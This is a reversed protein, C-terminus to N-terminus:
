SQVYEMVELVLKKIAERNKATIPRNFGIIDQTNLVDQQKKYVDLFKYFKSTSYEEGIQSLYYIIGLLGLNSTLLSNSREVEWDIEYQVFDDLATALQEIIEVEERRSNIQYLNDIILSLDTFNILKNRGLVSSTNIYQGFESSDRLAAAVKDSRNEQQLERVRHKSWPMAKAHQAQWLQAEKTTYNSVVVNFYFDLEPNKTFAKLSALCRHYGDLIDLRTGKTIILKHNKSDMILEDGDEATRPAANLYITSDKLQGSLLLKEMEKINKKNTTPQLIITDGRRKTTAERQIDFSYNLIQANMLKAITKASMRVSHTLDNLKLAPYLELPLEMDTDESQYLFQELEKQESETFVQKLKNNQNSRSFVEKVFLRPVRMDENNFVEQTNRTLLSNTVGVPIDYKEKLSQQVEELTQQKQNDMDDFSAVTSEFITEFDVTNLNM